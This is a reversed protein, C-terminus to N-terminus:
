FPIGIGTSPKTNPLPSLRHGSMPKRQYFLRPACGSPLCPRYSGSCSVLCSASIGSKKRMEFAIAHKGRYVLRFLSVLLAAGSGAVIGIGGGPAFLLAGPHLAFYRAHLFLPSLKWVVLGALLADLFISGAASFSEKGKVRFAPVFRAVLAACLAGTAM